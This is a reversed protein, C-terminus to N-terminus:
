NHSDASENNLSTSYYFSLFKTIVLVMIAYKQCYPRDFSDSCQGSFLNFTGEMKSIHKQVKKACGYCHMSVRLEVTQM